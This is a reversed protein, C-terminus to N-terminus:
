STIPTMNSTIYPTVLSQIGDYTTQGCRERSEIARINPRSNRCRGVLEVAPADFPKKPFFHLAPCHLLWCSIGVVSSCGFSPRGNSVSKKCFSVFPVFASPFQWGRLWVKAQCWALTKAAFLRLFRLFKIASLCLDCLFASLFQSLCFFPPLFIFPTLPTHSGTRWDFLNACRCSTWTLLEWWTSLGAWDTPDGARVTAPISSDGGM